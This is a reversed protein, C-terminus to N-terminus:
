QFETQDKLLYEPNIYKLKVRGCFSSVREEIPFVVVGENPEKSITNIVLFENVKDMSYPGVYMIPVYQINYEICFDLMDQYNLWKGDKMVDYCYFEHENIGCNYLYGKQIGGGVIEGYVAYGKPIKNRFDEQKAIKTYVDGFDCGQKESKFGPHSKGPKAQIQARRSGWCFTWEPRLGLFKLAKEYWSVPETKFWGYRASTGHLKQTIVVTEDTILVNRDYRKGHEIDTYEKFERVKYPNTNPNVQMLGPTSKVPEEYKKIGLISAVDQELSEHKAFNNFDLKDYIESIDPDILMGQSVLGRIKIAGIRSKNLTIKSCEPFLLKELWDSLVSGVPIYIVIDGVNYLGMPIVVDYDYVKAICLSDANNHKKIDLIKTLPVRFTSM